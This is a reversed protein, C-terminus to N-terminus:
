VGYTADVYAEALNNRRKRQTDLVRGVRLERVPAVPYHATPVSEYPKTRAAIVLEWDQSTETNWADNVTDLFTGQTGLVQTATAASYRGDQEVPECPSPLYYRGRNVPRRAPDSSLSVAISVQPAQRTTGGHGQGPTGDLKYGIHSAAPWRENLLATQLWVADYWYLRAETVWAIDTMHTNVDTFMTVAANFVREAMDDLVEPTDASGDVPAWCTSFSFIETAAGPTAGCSVGRVSALVVTSSLKPYAVM